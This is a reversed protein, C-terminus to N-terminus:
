AAPSMPEEVPTARDIAAHLAASLTFVVDKAEDAEGSPMTAILPGFDERLERLGRISDRFLARQDAWPDPTPAPQGATDTKAAPALDQAALADDSSVPEQSVPEPAAEPAPPTQPSPSPAQDFPTPESQPGDKEGDKALEAQRLRKGQAVAARLEAVSWGETEARRLWELREEATEVAMAVRHHDFTLNDIRTSLEYARAVSGYTRATGYNVGAKEALAEGEGWQRGSGFAWWDGRWWQVAGEALHLVQGCDLWADFTMDKPLKWGTRTIRGPLQIGPRIPMLAGAGGPPADTNARRSRRQSKKVLETELWVEFQENSMRGLRQWRQSEHRDIGLDTLTPLGSPAGARGGKKSHGPDRLGAREMTILLQALRREARWRSEYAKLKIELDKFYIGARMADARLYLVERIARKFLDLRNEADQNMADRGAQEIATRMAILPEPSPLKHDDPAGTNDHKM